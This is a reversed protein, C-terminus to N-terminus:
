VASGQPPILGLIRAPNDIFLARAIRRTDDLDCVGEEVKRALAVSVDLRALFQHGM